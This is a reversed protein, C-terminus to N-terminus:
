IEIRFARQKQKETRVKEKINRAARNLEVPNVSRYKRNDKTSDNAEVIANVAAEICTLLESCNRSIGIEVGILMIKDSTLVGNYGKEVQFVERFIREVSLSLDKSKQAEYANVIYNFLDKAMKEEIKMLRKQNLEKLDLMDQGLEDWPMNEDNYKMVNKQLSGSCRSANLWYGYLLSLFKYKYINDKFAFTNVHAIVRAVNTLYLYSKMDSSTVGDKINVSNQDQLDFLRLIEIFWMHQQESYRVMQFFEFNIDRYEQGDGRYQYPEINKPLLKEWLKKYTKSNCDYLFSQPGFLKEFDALSDANYMHFYNIVSSSMKRDTRNGGPMGVYKDIPFHELMNPDDCYLGMMEVMYVQKMVKNNEVLIYGFFYMIAFILAFILLFFNLVRVLSMDIFMTFLSLVNIMAFTILWYYMRMKGFYFKKILFQGYDVGIITKKDALSTLGIVTMNIAIIALILSNDYIMPVDFISVIYEISSKMWIIPTIVIYM